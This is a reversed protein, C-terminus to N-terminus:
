MGPSSIFYVQIVYCRHQVNSNGQALHGLSQSITRNLNRNPQYGSPRFCAGRERGDTVRIQAVASTIGHVDVPHQKGGTLRRNGNHEPTGDTSVVCAFKSDFFWTQCLFFDQISYVFM